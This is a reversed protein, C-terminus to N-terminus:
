LLVMFEGDIVTFSMDKLAHLRGFRKSLNTVELSSM